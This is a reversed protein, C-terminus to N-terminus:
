VEKRGSKQFIRQLHLLCGLCIIIFGAYAFYVGSDKVIQIGVYPRGYEDVALNTVHFKLGQWKFPDNVLTLGEALINGGGSITLVAGVNRLVPDKYAVLQFALPFGDPLDSEGSTVYSGVLKRNQDYVDLMLTEQKLDLSTALITYEGWQFSEGTRVTHLSDKEGHNLVGVKVSVQYFERKIEKIGLSFGLPIDQEIDWRYVTDVSAGEHINITAVYGFASIVGGALTIIAGIHIFLTAKRLAKYRRITCLSLNVLLLGLVTQMTWDLFAVPKPLLTKPILIVTLGIFLYLAFKKSALLRYITDIKEM